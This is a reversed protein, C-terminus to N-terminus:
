LVDICNLDKAAQVLRDRMTEEGARLVMRPDYYKKNPKSAGDPNGIQGQLYDHNKKEFQRVGDWVAWQVTCVFHNM